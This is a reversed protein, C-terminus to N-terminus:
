DGSGTTTTSPPAARRGAPGTRRAAGSRGARRAHQDGALRQRPPRERRAPEADADERPDPQQHDGRRRRQHPGVEDAVLQREVVVRPAPEARRRARRRQARHQEEDDRDHVVREPAAAAADARRQQRQRQQRRDAKRQRRAAPAIRPRERRARDIQRRQGPRPELAAVHRDERDVARREVVDCLADGVSPQRRESPQELAADRQIELGHPRRLRRGDPGRDGGALVRRLGADAGGGAVFVARGVAGDLQQGVVAERLRQDM